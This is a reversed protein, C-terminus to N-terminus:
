LWTFHATLKVHLHSRRRSSLLRCLCSSSACMFICFTLKEYWIFYLSNHCAKESGFQLRGTCRYMAVSNQICICAPLICFICNWLCETGVPCITHHHHWYPDLHRLRAMWMCCIYPCPVSSHSTKMYVSQYVFTTMKRHPCCFLRCDAYLGYTALNFLTNWTYILM